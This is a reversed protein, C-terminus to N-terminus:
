AGRIPPTRHREFIDRAWTAAPHGLVSERYSRLAEQADPEAPYELGQPQVIPALLAAATLDAVSFADGALYGSPQIEREIRDLVGQVQERAADVNDRRIGHRWTYFPQFLPLARQMVRRPGDGMGVSLMRAALAPEHSFAWGVLATRVAHGLEEDFYDELALARACTDRDSPYLAPMPQLGELREIIQTSDSVAKGDIFLIPLTPKGTALLARPLYDFTLVRREHPIRKWDLAWRVKENYHSVPFHWLVIDM